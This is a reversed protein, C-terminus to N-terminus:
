KGKRRTRGVLYGIIFGMIMVLPIFIIRSMEIKWFLFRLTVVQMNQLLLILFLAALVTIIINKSKM